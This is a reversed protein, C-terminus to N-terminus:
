WRVQPLNRLASSAEEFIAVALRIRNRLAIIVIWVITTFIFAAIMLGYLFTKNRSDSDLVPQGAKEQQL